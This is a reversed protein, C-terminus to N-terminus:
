FEFKLGLGGAIGERKGAYGQIGLDISLLGAPRRNQGFPVVSLGLEGIFTSGKPKPSEIPLGNASARAQGDFEGEFAAGVYPNIFDNAAYALRGGLRPRRSDVAEFDVRDGASLRVAGGDRHTRFYKGCM